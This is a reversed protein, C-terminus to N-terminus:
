SCTYTIGDHVHTGPGLDQCTNFVSGLAVAVLIILAIGVVISIAGLIIGIVAPTNKFGARKSKTLGVLALIFGVLGFGIFPLVISIIGLVKGPDQAPASYSQWGYSAPSGYSMQGYPPRGYQTQGFPPQGNAPEGYPAQGYPPQGYPEAGEPGRNPAPDSPHDSM